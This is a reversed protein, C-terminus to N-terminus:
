PMLSLYIFQTFSKNKENFFINTFYNQKQEHCCWIEDAKYHNQWNHDVLLWWAIAIGKEGNWDEHYGSISFLNWNIRPLKLAKSFM